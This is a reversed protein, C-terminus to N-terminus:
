HWHQSILVVLVAITYAGGLAKWVFEKMGKIQGALTEILSKIQNLKEDMVPRDYVDARPITTLELRSIDKRLEKLEDTVPEIALRLAEGLQDLSTADRSRPRTGM